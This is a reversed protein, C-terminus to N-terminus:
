RALIKRWRGGFTIKKWDIQVMITGPRFVGWNEWNPETYNLMVIAAVARIVSSWRPDTALPSHLLAGASASSEGGSM